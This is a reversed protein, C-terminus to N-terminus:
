LHIHLQVATEFYCPCQHLLIDLPLAIGIQPVVALQQGQDVQSEFLFTGVQIGVEVGLLQGFEDADTLITEVPKEAVLGDVTCRLGIDVVQSCDVGHSQQASLGVVANSGNGLSRAEVMHAGQLAADHIDRAHCWRIVPGEECPIHSRSM